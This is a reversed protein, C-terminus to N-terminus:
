YQVTLFSIINLYKLWCFYIKLSRKTYNRSLKGAILKDADNIHIRKWINKTPLRPRTSWMVSNSYSRNMLGSVQLGRKRTQNLKVTSFTFSACTLSVSNSILIAKFVSQNLIHKRLCLLHGGARTLLFKSYFM